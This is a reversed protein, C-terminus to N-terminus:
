WYQLFGLNVYNIKQQRRNVGNSTNGEITNLFGGSVSEIIGTHGTGEERDTITIFIHGPSILSPNQIADKAKIKKATSNDWHASCLGTKYLPNTKNMEESTKECCWYIFAACWANGSGLGVSKLYDNVRKGSNSGLPEEKTGVEGSAIELVRKMYNSGAKINKQITTKGFLTEWTIPGVLGDVILPNGNQDSFRAQFLKVASFTSNDFTGNVNLPGCGKLILRRQIARVIQSDNEGKSIVRRPYSRPTLVKTRVHVRDKKDSLKGNGNTFLNHAKNIFSTAAGMEETFKNRNM